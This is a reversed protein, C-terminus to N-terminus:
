SVAEEGRLLRPVLETSVIAEGNDDVRWARANPRSSVVAQLTSGEFHLAVGDDAAYGPQLEGRAVAQEYAPRRLSDADYHPCFSGPLFALGDHLPALHRLSFSDTIGEAFWCLGGASLGCLIVGREWARRLARDLGHVRWVALLNATNGGGVYIADQELLFADLDEVTRHFLELVSAQARTAPFAKCFREIYDGADGSATPVFCIRPRARGTLSLVYDDLLPNDPEESFGGGGMAVITPKRMQFGGCFDSDSALAADSQRPLREAVKRHYALSREEALRHLSM